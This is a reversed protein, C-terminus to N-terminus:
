GDFCGKGVLEDRDNYGSCYTCMPQGCAACTLEEEEYIVLDCHECHGEVDFLDIALRPNVKEKM